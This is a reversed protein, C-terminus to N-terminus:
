VTTQQEGGEEENKWTELLKELVIGGFSGYRGKKSPRPAFPSVPILVRESKLQEAAGRDEKAM